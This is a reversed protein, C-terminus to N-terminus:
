TQRHMRMKRRYGDYISKIPGREENTRWARRGHAEDIVMGKTRTRRGHANAAGGEERENRFQQGFNSCLRFHLPFPFVFSCDICCDVVLPPCCPCPFISPRHHSRPCIHVPLPSLLSGNVAPTVNQIFSIHLPYPHHRCPCVSMRLCCPLPTFSLVRAHPHANCLILLSYHIINICM